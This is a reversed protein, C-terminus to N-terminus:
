DRLRRGTLSMFVDELTASRVQVTQARLGDGDTVQMLDALTGAVDDTMLVFTSGEQAVQRASAVSRLRDPSMAGAFTCEVTNEFDLGRVLGRPTDIAMLTGRDMIAVRDCLAEAEEMYHTTLIVTTGDDKLSRILDWFSHRAQPDLGTTPEDLFVIEPDNVLATAIALRQKQGGSLGKVM